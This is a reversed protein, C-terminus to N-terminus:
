ARGAATWAQSFDDFSVFNPFGDEGPQRELSLGALARLRAMKQGDFRLRAAPLVPTTVTNNCAAVLADKDSQQIVGAIVMASLFASTEVANADLGDRLLYDGTAPFQSKVVTALAETKAIGIIKACSIPTLLFGNPTQTVLPDPNWLFNYGQQATKENYVSDALEAKLIAQNNTSLAM